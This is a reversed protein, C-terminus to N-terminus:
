QTHTSNYEPISQRAQVLLSRIVASLLKFCPQSRPLRAPPDGRVLRNVLVKLVVLREARILVTSIVMTPNVVAGHALHIQNDKIRVALLQKLQSRPFQAPPRRHVRSTEAEVM